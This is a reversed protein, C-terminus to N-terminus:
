MDPVKNKWYFRTWDDRRRSAVRHVVVFIYVAYVALVVGSLVFAVRSSVFGVRFLAAPALACMTALLTVMVLKTFWQTRHRSYSVDLTAEAVRHGDRSARAELSALRADERQLTSSLDHNAIYNAGMQSVLMTQAANEATMASATM